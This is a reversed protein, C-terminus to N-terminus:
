SIRDHPEFTSISVNMAQDCLYVKRQTKKIKVTGLLSFSLFKGEPSVNRNTEHLEGQKKKKAKM